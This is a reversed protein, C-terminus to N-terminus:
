RSLNESVTPSYVFELSPDSPLGYFCRIDNVTGNNRILEALGDRMNSDYIRQSNRIMAISEKEDSSVMFSSLHSSAYELILVRLQEAEVRGNCRFFEGKQFRPGFFSLGFEIGNEVPVETVEVQNM